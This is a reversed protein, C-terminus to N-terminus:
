AHSRESNRVYLSARIAAAAGEGAATIIQMGGCTCDGAALVGEVNTRQQRDVIICGREDVEIGAKQMVETMPIRGLSVFVGDTPIKQEENTKLNVVRIATVFNEGEVGVVKTNLLVQFNNREELRKKWIETM